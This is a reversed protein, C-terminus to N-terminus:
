GNSTDESKLAKLILQRMYFSLTVGDKYADEELMKKLQPEVAVGIVIKKDKVKPRGVRGMKTKGKM